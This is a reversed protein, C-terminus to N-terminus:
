GDTRACAVAGWFATIDDAFHQISHVETALRRSDAAMPEHWEPHRLYALIAEAFGAPSPDAVLLGNEGDRVFEHSQGVNEAIVANGAAMAELMSLSTFNEVAQTSVFLRSRAFVPSMDAAHTVALVDALGHHAVRAVIARELAGQGYMEFRWRGALEPAHARVCAVADVFTLPRKQESFRGAFVIVNEKVPAPRFKEPDTFCFRAARVLPDGSVFRNRALLDVFSRYWSYIGDLETWRFYLRHADLVQREYTGVPPAADFSAAVTCDVVTLTLKPRLRAPLRSLVAFYPVYSPTPLCVHVVDFRRALTLWLLRLTMWAIGAKGRAPRAGLRLSLVRDARNLRGAAELRARSATATILTVDYAGDRGSLFQHLDSFLREAGGSGALDNVVVMVLALKTPRTLPGRRRHNM